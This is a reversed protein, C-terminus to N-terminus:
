IEISGVGTVHHIGVLIRQGKQLSTCIEELGVIRKLACKLLSSSVICRSCNDTQKIPSTQNARSMDRHYNTNTALSTKALVNITSLVLSRM